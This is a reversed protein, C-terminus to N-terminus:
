YYTYAARSFSIRLHLLNAAKIIINKYVNVWEDEFLVFIVVTSDIADIIM